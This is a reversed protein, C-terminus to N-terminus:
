KSFSNCLESFGGVYTIEEETCKFIQPLGDFDFVKAVSEFAAVESSRIDKFEKYTYNINKSKLFEETRLCASCNEKGLIIYQTNHTM